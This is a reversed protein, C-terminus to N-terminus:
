NECWSFAMSDPGVPAGVVDNIINIFIIEVNAFEEEIMKKLREAGALDDGHTIVAKVKRNGVKRNRIDAALQKLLGTPIDKAGTKLGAPALVGNKLAMVPRIGAGAMGRMLNAVLGSIRGSAEIWKPDKFMVYFHIQPVMERIEAIIDAAERGKEILEIAKLILLAQGGSVNLTDIVFVRAQKSKDLFKVAQVASNNTGSHKSTLTLCLVKEFSNLQLNYKDLFDKVSSQSTKGFSQIGMKELERMKQFTNNGPLNEIEPWHLKIPVVALRYKKIIEQPLDAAVDTVIGIKEM